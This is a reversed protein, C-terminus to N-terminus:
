PNAQNKEDEAKLKAIQDDLSKMEMIPGNLAVAIRFLRQAADLGSAKHRNLMLACAEIASAQLAPAPPNEIKMKAVQEERSVTAAFGLYCSMLMFAENPGTFEFKNNCQNKIWKLDSLDLDVQWYGTRKNILKQVESLEEAPEKINEGQSIESDNVPEATATEEPQGMEITVSDAAEMLADTVLTNQETM